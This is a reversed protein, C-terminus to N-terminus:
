DPTAITRSQLFTVHELKQPNSDYLNHQKIFSKMLKMKPEAKYPQKSLEYDGM